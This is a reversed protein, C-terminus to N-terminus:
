ITQISIISLMNETTVQTILNFFFITAQIKRKKLYDLDTLSLKVTLTLTCTSASNKAPGKNPMHRLGANCKVAFLSRSLDSLRRKKKVEKPPPPPPFSDREKVKEHIRNNKGKTENEKKNKNSKETVEAARKNLTIYLSPLVTLM